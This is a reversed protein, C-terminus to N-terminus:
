CNGLRRGTAKARMQYDGSGSLRSSTDLQVEFSDATYRGNAMPSIQGGKVNCQYATNIRGQRAYNSIASCDGGQPTFLAALGKADAICAKRVEKDGAKAAVAPTSQDTSTVSEVVSSMEWEGSPFATPVATEAPPQDAEGCSALAAAAIATLVVNRM